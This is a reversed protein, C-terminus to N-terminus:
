TTQQANSTYKIISQTRAASTRDCVDGGSEVYIGEQDVHPDKNSHIISNHKMHPICAVSYQMASSDCGALSVDPIVHINRYGLISETGSSAAGKVPRLM